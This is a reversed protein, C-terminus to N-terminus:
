KQIVYKLVYQRLKERNSKLYEPHDEAIGEDPTAMLVYSELLGEKDLTSLLGFQKNSSKRDEAIKVAARLSEVEEALSHRYPKQAFAKAFKENKWSERTALYALWPSANADDPSIASKPVAKGKADFSFDPLDIAPHGLSNGTVQAWQNIGQVAMRSYPEVIFAEIYRDRAQDYKKQKMLPTASWRYSTERNPDIKIGRQYWKEAMEWDSKAVYANGGANAAHYITPDLSLAKEYLRIADDYKSQVFFAEGEVMAKEAEPNQSYNPRKPDSAVPKGSLLSILNDNAPDNLGLKKAELFQELAKASLQKAEETNSTQKSKAVLCFGYGFRLIPIDPLAKIAIEFHPIAEVYQEAKFLALAQGTARM